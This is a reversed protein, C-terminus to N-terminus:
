APISHPPKASKIRQRARAIAIEGPTANDAHAQAFIDDLTKEITAVRRAVRAADYGGPDLEDGVNIVGGANIVFDPAYVIRRAALRQADADEALQNNAGGAVVKCRLGPISDQNIAAGIACPAIVDVDQSLISDPAVIEAGLERAAAVGAAVTDAAYVSAGSALLREILGLGVKGCGQVAVRIGAFDEGLEAARLAARMGVFIGQSTHPSPDGSGGSERSRGVAFRTVENLVAIDPETMGMDETAVYRGNLGEVIRGMALFVARREEPLPALLVAKAGGFDLGACANKYSMAQSLRLADTLAAQESEYTRIRIGGLSPGLRTSHIAVIARLGTAQDYCHVVQEHASAVMDEIINLM